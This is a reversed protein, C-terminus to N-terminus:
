EVGVYANVVEKGTSACDVVYVAQHVDKLRAIEREQGPTPTKGPAKFEIFFVDGAPSIFLRDPVSRHNPSVFKRVYFGLDRAHRCVAGEIDSESVRKTRARVPAPPPLPQTM